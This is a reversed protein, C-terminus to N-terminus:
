VISKDLTTGLLSLIASKIAKPLLPWAEAIRALDEAHEGELVLGPV